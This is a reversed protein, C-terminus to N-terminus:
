KEYDELWYSTTSLLEDLEEESKDTKITIALVFDYDDFWSEDSNPDIEDFEEESMEKGYANRCARNSSIVESTIVELGVKKIDLTVEDIAENETCTTYAFYRRYEMM